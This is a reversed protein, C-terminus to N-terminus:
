NKKSLLALTLKFISFAKKSRCGCGKANKIANWLVSKKLSKHIFGGRQHGWQLRRKHVSGSFRVQYLIAVLDEVNNPVLIAHKHVLVGIQGNQGVEMNLVIPLKLHNDLVNPVEMPLLLIIANEKAVNAIIAMLISELILIQIVVNSGHLGYEGNDM